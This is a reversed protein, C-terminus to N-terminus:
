CTENLSRGAEAASVADTNPWMVRDLSLENAIMQLTM